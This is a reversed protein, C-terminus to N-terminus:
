TSPRALRAAIQEPPGPRCLHFGQAFHCGLTDIEVLTAADEIGEAVILLDHARVIDVIAAFISRAKQNNGIGAVFSRDIKVGTIPLESLRALSSYGTGFDDIATRIGAARLEALLKQASTTDQMIASETVELLLTSAPLGAEELMALLRTAFTPSALQMGSVNVSLQVGPLTQSWERAQAIVMEFVRDGLAVMLGSQEALPIFDGPPILGRTPHQWRVLTEARDWVRDRLRLLPQYHMVLEGSEIARRLEVERGIGDLLETGLSRDYVRQRGFGDGRAAHMAAAGNRVLGYADSVGDSYAVGVSITLFFEGAELVIPAEFAATLREIFANVTAEDAAEVMLAFEDGSFRGVPGNEGAAKLLRRGVEALLHDGARPGLTIRLRKFRDIELCLVAVPDSSRRMQENVREIFRVRNMAGTLPDINTARQAQEEFAVREIALAAINGVSSVLETERAGPRERQEHYIAILGVVEGTAKRIPYAWLSEVGLKAFADRFGDMLPDTQVDEVVIPERRAAAAGWVGYAEGVALGDVLESFVPALSPGAVQRLAGVGRDVVLIGCRASESQSEVYRCLADLVQALPEGAAIGQIARREAMLASHAEDMQGHEIRAQAQGHAPEAETAM